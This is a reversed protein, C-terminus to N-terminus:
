ADDTTTSAEVDIILPLRQQFERAYVRNYLEEFEQRDKAAKMLTIVAVIQKDLHENGTDATLFQHHRYRRYGKRVVPNRARLETLVGPPLQDYIFKNILKGVGQNRKATGPKYEWNQLRYVQKFFEDPFMKMWPRLEPAIYAELIKQLEDKAREEQYGTAEDVLAIIGVHALGRMLLYCADAIHKQNALLKKKDRANLYVDCVLPLLKADYGYGRGGRDTRFAIPVAAERLEDPVFEQLNEAALFPPMGSVLSESGTGAKAKAARGIAKLFTEQTLLRKGGELVACAIPRGAIVITGTHTARPLMDGWRARAAARAIERRDEPEMYASRAKGGKAARLRVLARTDRSAQEVM